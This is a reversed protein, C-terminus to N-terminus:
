RHREETVCQPQWWTRYGMSLKNTTIASTMTSFCNITDALIHDHTQQLAASELFSANSRKRLHLPVLSASLVDSDVVAAFKPAIRTLKANRGNSLAGKLLSGELAHCEAPPAPPSLTVASIAM